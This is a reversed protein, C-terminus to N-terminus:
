GAHAAQEMVAPTWEMLHYVGKDEVKRFGLRDYLNIAPNFREVHIRVLLNESAAQEFIDQFLKSGIGQKRYKPLLSIDMIRIEDSRRQIYLRGVKEQNMQIIQYQANLYNEHYYRDQADFQMRLFQNKQEQPWDVLSLENTRTSAYVTFLFERDASRAPRLTIKM